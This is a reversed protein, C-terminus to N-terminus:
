LGYLEIIDLMQSFNDIDENNLSSLAKLLKIKSQKDINFGYKTYKIVRSFISMPNNVQHDIVLRKLYLDEFYQDHYLFKFRRFQNEDKYSHMLFKSVTFDFDDLIDAPSGYIYHILEVSYEKERNSQNIKDFRICHNTSIVPEFDNSREFINKARNFQDHNEFFLDIDKFQKNEFIDKFCGGAIYFEDLAQPLYSILDKLQNFSKLGKKEIFEDNFISM